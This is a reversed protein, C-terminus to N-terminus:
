GSAWLALCADEESRFSARVEGDKKLLMAAEAEESDLEKSFPVGGDPINCCDGARCTCRGESRARASAASAIGLWLSRSAKSELMAAHLPACLRLFPGLMQSCPRTHLTHLCHPPPLMQWCLRRRLTQLSQPPPPMHWCPLCFVCHLAQPPAHTQGCPFCFLWHLSQPPPLMQGCLRTRLLHRSHPPPLMHRCLFRRLVHASQLPPPTHWCPLRSSKHLSHESAATAAAAAVGRALVKARSSLMRSDGAVGPRRSEEKGGRVGASLKAETHARVDEQVLM